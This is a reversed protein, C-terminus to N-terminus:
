NECFRVGRVGKKVGRVIKTRVGDLSLKSFSVM